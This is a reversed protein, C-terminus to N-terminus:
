KAASKKFPNPIASKPFSLMKKAADRFREFAEPGEIMEAHPKMVTKIMARKCGFRQRTTTRRSKQESCTSFDPFMIGFDLRMRAPLNLIGPMHSIVAIGTM